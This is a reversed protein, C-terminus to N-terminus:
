IRDCCPKSWIVYFTILKSIIWWIFFFIISHMKDKRLQQQSCIFVQPWKRLLLLIHMYNTGMPTQKSTFSYNLRNWTPVFRNWLCECAIIHYNIWFWGCQSRLKTTKKRGGREERRKRKQWISTQLMYLLDLKASVDIDGVIKYSAILDISLYFSSYIPLFLSLHAHDIKAIM